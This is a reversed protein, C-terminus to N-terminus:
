LINKLSFGHTEYMAKLMASLESCCAAFHPIEESQAYILMERFLRETDDMPSHDAFAATLDRYKQWREYADMALPIAADMRDDLALQSAKQLAAEAPAHIAKMGLATGICLALVLVLLSLGLIFRREM